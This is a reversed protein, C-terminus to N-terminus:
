TTCVHIAESLSDYLILSVLRLVQQTRSTSGFRDRSKERIMIERQILYRVQDSWQAEEHHLRRLRASPSWNGPDWMRRCGLVM